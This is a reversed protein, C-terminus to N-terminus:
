EDTEIDEENRLEEIKETPLETISSIMDTTNGLKILNRAIKIIGEEFGEVRAQDLASMGETWIAYMRRVKQDTSIEDYRERYQKFGEDKAAFETLVSNLRIVEGLPKNEGFGIIHACTTYTTIFISFKSVM